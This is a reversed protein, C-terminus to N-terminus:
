LTYTATQESIWVCCMFVSTGSMERVKKVKCGILYFFYLLWFVRVLLLLICMYYVFEGVLVYM